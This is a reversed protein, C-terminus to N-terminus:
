TDYLGDEFCSDNAQADEGETSEIDQLAGSMEYHFVGSREDFLSDAQSDSADDLDDGFSDGVHICRESTGIRPRKVTVENVHIHQGHKRKLPGALTESFTPEYAPAKLHKFYETPSEANYSRSADVSISQGASKAVEEKSAEPLAFKITM